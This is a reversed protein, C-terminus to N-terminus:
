LGSLSSKVWAVSRGEAVFQVIAVSTEDKGSGSGLGSSVGIGVTFGVDPSDLAIRLAAIVRSAVLKGVM